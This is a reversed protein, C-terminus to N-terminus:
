RARREQAWCVLAAVLFAGWLLALILLKDTYTM